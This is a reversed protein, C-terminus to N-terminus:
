EKGKNKIYKSKANPHAKDWERECNYSCVLKTKANGEHYIHEPAPHFIKGCQPCKIGKGNKAYFGDIKHAHVM